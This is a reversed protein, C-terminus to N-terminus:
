SHTQARPRQQKRKAPFPKLGKAPLGCESLRGKVQHVRSKGPSPQLVDGELDSSPRVSHHLWSSGLAHPGCHTGQLKMMFECEAGRWEECTFLGVFALHTPLREALAGVEDGVATLVCAELGKATVQTPLAELPLHVEPPVPFGLM